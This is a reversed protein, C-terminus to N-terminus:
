SRFSGNRRKRRHMVVPLVLLWVLLLATLSFWQGSLLAGCAKALLGGLLALMVLLRIVRPLRRLLAVVLGLLVLEPILWLPRGLLFARYDLVATHAPVQVQETETHIEGLLESLTLGMRDVRSSRKDGDTPREIIVATPFDSAPAGASDGASASDAADAGSGESGESGESGSAGVERSDSEENDESSVGSVSGGNGDINSSGSGIVDTLRIPTVSAHRLRIRGNADIPIEREGIRISKGLELRIDAPKLGLRRLAVRLPLTPMTEGNWRMVLPFSLDDVASPHQTLPEDELWDPAWDVSIGDPTEALGNPLPRNAAPLGTPDGSINETPIAYDRLVIPTFDAQAATRGRLGLTAAPFRQLVNSLIDRTIDATEEPWVLPSSIALAKVGRDALNDAIVALDRPGLPIAAFTDFVTDDDLLLTGVAPSVIYHHARQETRTEVPESPDLRLQLTPESGLGCLRGLQEYLGTDADRTCRAPAFGILLLLILLLLGPWRHNRRSSM